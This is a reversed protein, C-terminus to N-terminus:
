SSSASEQTDSGTVITPTQMCSLVLSNESKGYWSCLIGLRTTTSVKAVLGRYEQAGKTKKENHHSFQLIKGAKWNGDEEFVRIDGISVEKCYSPQKVTSHPISIKLNENAYPQEKSSIFSGFVSKAKKFFGCWM